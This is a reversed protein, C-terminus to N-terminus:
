IKMERITDGAKSGKIRLVGTNNMGEVLPDEQTEQRM